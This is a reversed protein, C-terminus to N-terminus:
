YEVEKYLTRQYFLVLVLVVATMIYAAASGLGFQLSVFSKLYTYYGVVTTGGSPGGATLTYILDFSKLAWITRLAVAVFLMPRILPLTIRFLSHLASAGDVRAAEYLDKPITQLAALFLLMIFPTEKWVDALIVMALASGPQGMWIIYRDILGLQYLLGNLAGYSPNLIWKWMIGNVVSPVAWPLLALMRVLNRGRFERNLALACGLGLLIALGVDCVVFIVTVKASQLFQPDTLVQAYNALGVFPTGEQPKTLDWRHLSIWLSYFLPYVTVFAIALLAPATLAVALWLDERRRRSMRKLATMPRQEQSDM